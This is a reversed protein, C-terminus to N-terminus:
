REGGGRLESIYNLVCAVPQLEQRNAPHLDSLMDDIEDAIKVREARLLRTAFDAMCKYIGESFPKGEGSEVFERAEEVLSPDAPKAPSGKGYEIAFLAMANIPQDPRGFEDYFKAAAEVVDLYEEGFAFRDTDTMERVQVFVRNDAHERADPPMFAPCDHSHDNPFGCKCLKGATKDNHENM